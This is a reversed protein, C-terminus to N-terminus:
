YDMKAYEGFGVVDKLFLFKFISDSLNTKRVLIESSQLKLSTPFPKVKPYSFGFSFQVFLIFFL